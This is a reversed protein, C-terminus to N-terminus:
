IYYTDHWRYVTITKNGRKWNQNGKNGERITVALIELVINFLLPSPPCRQRTRSWLLFKKLKEGSLIITAAPKDYTRGKNHQPLNRRHGSKPSNKKLWLYANFKDFAKEVDISIIMHNKNKSKNIHIVSISKHISFFGEMLWKLLSNPALDHALLFTHARSPCMQALPSRVGQFPAHDSSLKRFSRALSFGWSCLHAKPVQPVPTQVWKSSRSYWLM